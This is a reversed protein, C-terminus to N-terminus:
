ADGPQRRRVHRRAARSEYEHRAARGEDIASRVRSRANGAGQAARGAQRAVRAPVTQPDLHTRAQRIGALTYLTVLAGATAGVVLWFLRRIV